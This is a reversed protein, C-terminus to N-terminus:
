FCPTGGFYSPARFSYGYIAAFTPSIITQPTINTGCCISCYSPPPYDPPPYDPPPYDPPPYDPPPYDPPPYSSPPYSSPPYSSPPYSPPPPPPSVYVTTSQSINGATGTCALTYNTTSTLNGTSYTGSQQGPTQAQSNISCSNINQATWDIITSSGYALPSSSTQGGRPTFQTIREVGVTATVTTTPAGARYCSITFTTDNTFNNFTMSGGSISKSGAWGSVAPTNPSPVPADCSTARSINDWTVTTSNPTPALIGPLVRLRVAPSNPATPADEQPITCNGSTECTSSVKSDQPKYQLSTQATTSDSSPWQVTAVFSKSTQNYNVAVSYPSATSGSSGVPLPCLHTTPNVEVLASTAPNICFPRDIRFAAVDSPHAIAIAKIAEIQQQAYTLAQSRNSIDIGSKLSRTSTAYAAAMVVALILMCLMVEVITDGRSLHTHNKRRLLKVKEGQYYQVVKLM